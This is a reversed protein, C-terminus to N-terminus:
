ARGKYLICTYGDYIRVQLDNKAKLAQLRTQFSVFAVPQMHFVVDCYNVLIGCCALIAMIDDDVLSRQSPKYLRHIPLQFCKLRLCIFWVLHLFYGLGTTVQIGPM